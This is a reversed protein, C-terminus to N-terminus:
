PMEGFKGGQNPNPSTRPDLTLPATVKGGELAKQEGSLEIAAAALTAQDPTPSPSPSPNRSPSARLRVRSSLRLRATLLARTVARDVHADSVRGLRAGHEAGMHM